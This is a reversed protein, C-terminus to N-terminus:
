AEAPPDAVSAPAIGVSRCSVRQTGTETGPFASLLGEAADRADAIRNLSHLHRRHSSSPESAARSRRTVARYVQSDPLSADASALARCGDSPFVVLMASLRFRWARAKGQDRRHYEAQGITEKHRRGRRRRAARMNRTWEHWPRVYGRRFQQPQPHRPSTKSDGDGEGSGRGRHEPGVARSSRWAGPTPQREPRTNRSSPTGPPLLGAEVERRSVPDFDLWAFAQAIWRGKTMKCGGRQAPKVAKRLSRHVATTDRRVASAGRARM